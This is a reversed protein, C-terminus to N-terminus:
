LQPCPAPLSLTPRCVQFAYPAVSGCPSVDAAEPVTLGAELGPVFKSFPLSPARLFLSLLVGYTKESTVGGDKELLFKYADVPSINERLSRPSGLASCTSCSVVSHCFPPRHHFRLLDPLAFVLIVFVYYLNGM